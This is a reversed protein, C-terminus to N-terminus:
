FFALPPPVLLADVREKTMSEFVPEYDESGFEDTMYLQVRTAQAVRRLETFGGGLLDTGPNLIAVKCVGTVDASPRAFSTVIGSEILDEGGWFAM